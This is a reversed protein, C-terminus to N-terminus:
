FDARSPIRKRNMDSSIRELVLLIADGIEREGTPDSPHTILCGRVVMASSGGGDLNIADRAGLHKMVRRLEEISLGVSRRTAVSSSEAFERGDVVVLWIHGDASVGVATRPNRLVSWNHVYKLRSISANRTAWGESDDHRVMKGNWLLLPAGNVAYLLDTDGDGTPDNFSLDLQATVSSSIRERLGRAMRGIGVLMIGGPSTARGEVLHGDQRLTAMVAGATNPVFGSHETIAVLDDTVACTEDQSPLRNKSKGTTGCDRVQGPQRNIGNVLTIRGDSWKIKPWPRASPSIQVSVRPQDRIVLYPRGLTAESRLQGAVVSIGAPEGVVGEEATMAFFGGNIAVLANRSRAIETTTTRRTANGTGAWSFLRGRYVSPDVEVISLRWPGTSQYPTAAIARTSLACGRARAVAARALAEDPYNGGLVEVYAAPHRGPTEYAEM